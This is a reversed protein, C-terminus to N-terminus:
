TISFNLSFLFLSPNIKHKSLNYYNSYNTHESFWCYWSLSVPVSHSFCQAVFHMVCVQFINCPSYMKINLCVTFFAIKFKWYHQHYFYFYSQTLSFGVMRRCYSLTFLTYLTHDSIEPCVALPKYCLCCVTLHSYFV